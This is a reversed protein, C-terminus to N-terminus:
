ADSAEGATQAPWLQGTEAPADAKTILAFWSPTNKMAVHVINGEPDSHIQLVADRDYAKAAKVVKELPELYSSSFGSIPPFKNTLIGKWAGHEQEIPVSIVGNKGVIEATPMPFLAKEPRTRIIFEEDEDPDLAQIADFRGTFGTTLGTNRYLRLAIAITGNTAGVVIHDDRVMFTLGALPGKPATAHKLTNFVSKPVTFEFEPIETTTM